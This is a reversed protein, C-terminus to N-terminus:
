WGQPLATAYPPLYRVSEVVADYIIKGTGEASKGRAKM